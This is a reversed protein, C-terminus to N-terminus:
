YSLSEYERQDTPRAIVEPARSTDYAVNETVAMGKHANCNYAINEDMTVASTTIPHISDGISNGSRPALRSNSDEYESMYVPSLEGTVEVFSTIYHPISSLLCNTYTHM